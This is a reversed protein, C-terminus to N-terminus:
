ENIKIFKYKKKFNEIFKNEFLKVYDNVVNDLTIQNFYEFNFKIKNLIIYNYIDENLIMIYDGDSFLNNKINNNLDKYKYTSIENSINQNNDCSILNKDIENKTQIHCIEFEIKEESKFKKNIYYYTIFNNEEEIIKSKPSNIKKRISENINNISNFTKSKEIYNIKNKKLFKKFKIHDNKKYFNILEEINEKKELVIYNVLYEYLVEDKDVKSFIEDKKSNLQNELVEKRRLDYKLHKKIKNEGLNIFINLLDENTNENKYSNFIDIYIEEHLNNKRFNNKIYYENFLLVSIFDEKIDNSNIETNRSILKQYELREKIDITTFPKENISFILKEADINDAYISKCIFIIIFLLNILFIM